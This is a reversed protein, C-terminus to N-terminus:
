FIEAKIRREKVEYDGNDSRSGLDAVSSRRSQRAAHMLNDSPRSPESQLGSGKDTGVEARVSNRLTAYKSRGFELM